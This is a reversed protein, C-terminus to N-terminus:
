TPRDKVARYCRVNHNGRRQMQTELLGDEIWQDLERRIIKESHKYREQYQKISFWGRDEPYIREPTQDGLVEELDAWVDELAMDADMLGGEEM